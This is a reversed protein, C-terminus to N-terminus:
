ASVYMSCCKGYTNILALTIVTKDEFLFSDTNGNFQNDQSGKHEYIKMLLPLNNVVWYPLCVCIFLCICVCMHARVCVHACSCVCAHVCVCVCVCV